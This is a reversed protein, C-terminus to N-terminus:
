GVLMVKAEAKPDPTGFPPPPPVSDPELNPVEIHRLSARGAEVVERRIGKAMPSSPPCAFDDSKVHLVVRADSSTKKLYREERSDVHENSKLPSPEKKPSPPKTAPFFGNAGPSSVSDEQSSSKKARAAAAAMAAIGMPPARALPPMPKTEPNSSEDEHSKKKLAAAAALAGIGLSGPGGPQQPKVPKPSKEELDTGSSPEIDASSEANVQNSTKKAAAAAALAAIGSKPQIARALIDDQQDERVDDPGAFPDAFQKRQGTLDLKGKPQQRPQGETARESIHGVM